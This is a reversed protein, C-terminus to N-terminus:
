RRRKLSPTRWAPGDRRPAGDAVREIVSQELRAPSAQLGLQQVSLLPLYTDLEAGGQELVELDEVVLLWRCLESLISGGISDSFASLSVPLAAQSECM